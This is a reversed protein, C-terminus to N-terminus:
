TCAYGHSDPEMDANPAGCGVCCGCDTCWCNTCIGFDKIVSDWIPNTYTFFEDRAEKATIEVGSRFYRITM